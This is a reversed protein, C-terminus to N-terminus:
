FRKNEKSTEKEVDYFGRKVKFFNVGSRMYAFAILPNPSFVAGSIPARNTYVMLVGRGDVGRGVRGQMYSMRHQTPQNTGSVKPRVQWVTVTVM